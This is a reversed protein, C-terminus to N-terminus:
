CGCCLVATQVPFSGDADELIAQCPGDFLTEIRGDGDIDRGVTPTELEMMTEFEQPEGLPVVQDGVVRLKAIRLRTVDAHDSPLTQIVQVRAGGEGPAVSLVPDPFRDDLQAKVLDAVRRRDVTPADTHWSAPPESLTWAIARQGEPLEAKAGVTYGFTGGCENFVGSHVETIVGQVAPGRTPLVWVTRGVPVGMAAAADPEVTGFRTGGVVKAPAADHLKWELRLTGDEAPSRPGALLIDDPWQLQREVREAVSLDGVARYASALTSLVDKNRVDIAAARQAWALQAAPETAEKAETLARDLSLATEALFETAVWGVAGNAVRVQSFDGRADLVQLPTNISLTGSQTGGPADRLNLLSATVYRMPPASQQTVDGAASAPDVDVDDLLSDLNCAALVVLWSVM